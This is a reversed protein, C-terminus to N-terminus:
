PGASYFFLVAFAALVLAGGVWGTLIGIGLNRNNRLSVVGVAVATAFMVIETVAFVALGLFAVAFTGGAELDEGAYAVRVTVIFACVALVHGGLSAGIGTLVAGAPHRDSFTAPRLVTV